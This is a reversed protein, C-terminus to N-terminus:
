NKQNNSHVSKFLTLLVQFWIKHTKILILNLCIKDESSINQKLQNMALPPKLFIVLDKRKRRRKVKLKVRIELDMKHKVPASNVKM